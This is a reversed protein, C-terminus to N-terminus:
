NGDSSACEHVSIILVDSGLPFPRYVTERCMDVVNLGIIPSHNHFSPEPPPYKSSQVYQRRACGM